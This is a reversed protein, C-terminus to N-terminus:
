DNLIYFRKGDDSVGGLFLSCHKGWARKFAIVGECCFELLISQFQFLLAASVNLIILLGIDLNEIFQIIWDSLHPNFFLHHLCM